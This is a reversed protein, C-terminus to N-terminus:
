ARLIRRSRVHENRTYKELRIKRLYAAAFPNPEQQHRM